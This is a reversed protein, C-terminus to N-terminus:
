AVAGFSREASPSAILVGGFATRISRESQPNM